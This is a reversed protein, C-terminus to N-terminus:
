NYNRPNDEPKFYERDANLYDAEEETLQEGTSSKLAISAKLRSKEEDTYDLWTKHKINDKEPIKKIPVNERM